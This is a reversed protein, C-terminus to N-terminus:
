RGGANYLHKAVRQPPTGEDDDDMYFGARHASIVRDDYLFLPDTIFRMVVFGGEPPIAVDDIVETYGGVRVRLGEVLGGDSDSEVEAVVVFEGGQAVERPYLAAWKIFLRQDADLLEMRIAHREPEPFLWEGMRGVGQRALNGLM